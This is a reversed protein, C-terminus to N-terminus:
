ARGVLMRAGTWSFQPTRARGRWHTVQHVARGDPRMVFINGSGSVSDGNLFAIGTDHPLWVPNWAVLDPKTVVHTNTGNANMVEIATQNGRRVVFAIRSGDHSWAPTSDSFRSDSHILHADHGDSQMLWIQGRQHVWRVFAIQRENPSWTPTADGVAKRPRQTLRVPKNGSARVKWIEGGGSTDFAIWKGDPSWAPDSAISQTLRRFRGTRLNDIYLAFDGEAFPKYYGRFALARGNPSLAPDWATRPGLRHGAPGGVLIGGSEDGPRIQALSDLYKFVIFGHTAWKPVSRGDSRASTGSACGTILLLGAAFAALLRAMRFVVV